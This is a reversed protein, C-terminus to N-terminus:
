PVAACRRAVGAGRIVGALSIVVSGSGLLPIIGDDSGDCVGVDSPEIVGSSEGLDATDPVVSLAM